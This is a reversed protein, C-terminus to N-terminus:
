EYQPLFSDTGCPSRCTWFGAPRVMLDITTSISLLSNAAVVTHRNYGSTTTPRTAIGKIVGSAPDLHLGEPLEPEVSFLLPEKEKGKLETNYNLFPIVHKGDGVELSITSEHYWMSLKADNPLPTDRSDWSPIMYIDEQEQWDDQLWSDTSAGHAPKGQAPPPALTPLPALFELATLLPVLPDPTPSPRMPSVVDTAGSIDIDQNQSWTQGTEDKGTEEPAADSDQDPTAIAWAEHPVEPADGCETDADAANRNGKRKKKGRRRAKKPHDEHCYECETGRNCGSLSYCFFSCPTCHDPHLVSGISKSHTGSTVLYPQEHLSATLKQQALKQQLKPSKEPQNPQRRQQQHQQQDDETSDEKEKGDNSSGGSLCKYQQYQKLEPAKRPAEDSDDGLRHGLHLLPESSVKRLLSLAERSDSENFTELFTNKTCIQGAAQHLDGELSVFVSCADNYEQTECKAKLISETYPLPRAIQSFTYDCAQFAIWANVNEAFIRDVLMNLEAIHSANSLDIDQDTVDAQIGVLYSKRGIRISSMHFLNQFFEGFRRRNTLICVNTKGTRVAIRLRHRTDAKMPCGFSLFRCNQGLSEARTYGTLRRFGESVGIVPYDPLEPDVLVISVGTVDRFSLLAITEHFQDLQGAKFYDRAARLAKSFARSTTEKEKIARHDQRSM